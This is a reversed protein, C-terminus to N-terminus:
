PVADSLSAEIQDATDNLAEDIIQALRSQQPETMGIEPGLTDPIQRLRSRLLSLTEAITLKLPEAMVLEGRLQALKTRSVEAALADARQKPTLAPAGPEVTLAEPGLLELRLQADREARTAAAAEAEGHQAARWAAVDRLSLRYAVGNSGAQAVPCGGDIWRRVTPPSVAFFAAAETLSRLDDM